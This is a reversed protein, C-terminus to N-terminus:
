AGIDSVSRVVSLFLHCISRNMDMANQYAPSSPSHVIYAWPFSTTYYVAPPYVSVHALVFVVTFYFAASGFSLSTDAVAFFSPMLDYICCIGLLLLVSLKSWGSLAACSPVSFHCYAVPDPFTYTAYPISFTHLFPM